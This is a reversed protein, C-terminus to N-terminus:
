FLDLLTFIPFKKLKTIRNTHQQAPLSRLLWYNVPAALTILHNAFPPPLRATFNDVIVCHRSSLFKIQLCHLLHPAVSSVVVM